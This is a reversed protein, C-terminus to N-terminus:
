RVTLTLPVTHSLTAPGNAAIGTLALTYTGSPTHPGQPTSSGGCATWCAALFLLSVLSLRVLLARRRKGAALTLCLLLLGLVLVRERGRPDLPFQLRGPASSSGTTQITVTVTVPSTGNMAASSPNITCTSLAPAGSCTLIVPVNFGGAPNLTVPDTVEVGAPTVLTTSQPAMSFDEGTGSLAVTQPSGPANDTVTLTGTRDGTASPDFFVGITCNVGPAVSSTCGNVAAFDGTAQVATITLPVTGANTLTVDQPLGTTGVFQNPFAISAPTASAAAGLGTGSLTFSQPSDLANDTVVLFGTLAQPGSPSFTLKVSCNGGVAITSPCTNSETFDGTAAINTINLPLSGVNKLTAFQAASTTGVNQNPFSVATPLLTAGPAAIPSIIALFADPDGGMSSQFPRVLPFDYSGTVGVVVADGSPTIAIAYGSDLWQTNGVFSGSGGLLTSYVLGSGSSNLATVFACFQGPCAPEFANLTPTGAGGYASGIVYAQGASDIALGQEAVESASGGIYTGYVLSSGTPDFKALFGSESGPFISQFAGPTAPFIPKSVTGTVYASGSSDVAVAGSFAGNNQDACLYTSFALASFDPKLKAVVVNCGTSPATDFAGPTTPFTIGTTVGTVYPSGGSDVAIASGSVYEAGGLFTSYILPSGDPRLKSVFIEGNGNYTTQFAGTTVPFNSTNASGVLYVDEASDVVIGRVYAGTFCSSYLLHDGSSDLEGVFGDCTGGTYNTPTPNVIPFNTSRSSGAVFANGASDVAVTGVSDSASGGLFTSYILSAGSPDFKSIFGHGCPQTTSLCGFDATPQYSGSTTPFDPSYTFGAVVINGTSDVTVANAYDVGSGGLYSSYVLVPDIVLTKGRDYPGVEFGVEYTENGSQVTSKRVAYRGDVPRRGGPRTLDPQYVVPRHFVVTGDGAGMVLDGDASIQYPRGGAARPLASGEGVVDLVIARPDAHPALLFDYELQGQNGYCALDVGPYVGKVKVKAFNPVNSRWKKPDRGIFYNSKGPLEDLGVAKARANAGVLQLRVVSPPTTQPKPTSTVPVPLLFNSTPLLSGFGPAGPRDGFDPWNGTELKWNRSVSPQGSAVPLRRSGKQSRVGAKQSRLSLAVENGTVLVTYGSGRAVFGGPTPSPGATPEFALPIRLSRVRGPSTRGGYNSDAGPMARPTDAARVTGLQKATGAHATTVKYPPVAREAAVFLLAAIASAAAITRLRPRDKPM